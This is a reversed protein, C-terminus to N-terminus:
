NFSQTLVEWFVKKKFCYLNVFIFYDRMKKLERGFASFHTIIVRMDDVFSELRFLETNMMYSSEFSEFCIPRVKDRLYNLKSNRSSEFFKPFYAHICYLLRSLKDEPVVKASANQACLDLTLKFHRDELNGAFECLYSVLFGAVVRFIEFEIDKTKKCFNFITNFM